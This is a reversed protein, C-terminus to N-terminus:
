IKLRIETKLTPCCRADSKRYEIKEIQIANNKIQKFTFRYKPELRKLVELTKGKIKYVVLGYKEIFDGDKSVLTYYIVVEDINDNTLDGTYGELIDVGGVNNTKKLKPYEIKMFEKKSIEIAESKSTNDINVSKGKEKLEWENCQEDDWCERCPQTYFSIKKSVINLTDTLQTKTKLRENTFNWILDNEKELYWITIENIPKENKLFYYGKTKVKYTDKNLKEVSEILYNIGEQPKYFYFRDKSFRLVPYGGDCTNYVKYKNNTKSVGLLTLNSFNIKEQAIINISYILLIIIKYKM